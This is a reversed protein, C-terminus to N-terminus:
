QFILLYAILYNVEDLSLQDGFNQQMSGSVFGEVIYSNPYIISEYLYEEASINPIREGAKRGIGALPPGVIVRDGQVTHCTACHTRFLVEGRGADSNPDLKKSENDVKESQCAALIFIVSIWLFFKQM